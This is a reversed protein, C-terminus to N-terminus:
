YSHSKIVKSFSILVVSNNFPTTKQTNKSFLDHVFARNKLMLIPFINIYSVM